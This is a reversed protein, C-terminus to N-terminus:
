NLLRIAMYDGPDNPSQSIATLPFRLFDLFGAVLAARATALGLFILFDAAGFFTLAVGTFAVLRGLFSSPTSAGSKM